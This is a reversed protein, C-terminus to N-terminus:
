RSRFALVAVAISVVAIFAGTVLAFPQMVARCQMTDMLCLPLVNGPAFMAFLALALALLALVIRATPATSLLLFLSVGALFVGAGVLGTASDLCPGFTGDDHVCPGAFTLVGVVLLVSAALLIIDLPRAAKAKGMSAAKGRERWHLALRGGIAGARLYVHPPSDM